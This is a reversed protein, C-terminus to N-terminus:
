TLGARELADSAVSLLENVEDELDMAYEEDGSARFMEAAQKLKQAAQEYADAAAAFDGSELLERAHQTDEGASSMLEDESGLEPDGLAIERIIRKLDGVKIKM